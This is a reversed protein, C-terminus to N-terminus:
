KTLRDLREGRERAPRLGGEFTCDIDFVKSYSVGEVYVKSTRDGNHSAFEADVGATRGTLTRQIHRRSVLETLISRLIIARGWNIVQKRTGWKGEVLIHCEQCLLILWKSREREPFLKRPYIHHIHLSPSSIGGLLRAALNSTFAFCIECRSKAREEVFKRRGKQM